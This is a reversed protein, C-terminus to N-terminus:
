YRLDLVAKYTDVNEFYGVVVPIVGSLPSIYQIIQALHLAQSQNSVVIITINRGPVVQKVQEDEISEKFRLITSTVAAPTIDIAVDSASMVAVGSHNGNNDTIIFDFCLEPGMPSQIRVNNTYNEKLWKYIALISDKGNFYTSWYQYPVHEDAYEEQRVEKVIEKSAGFTALFESFLVIHFSNGESRRRYEDLLEYRPYLLIRKKDKASSYWWDSKGDASVFIISKKYTQGLHLITHWILLDGIGGDDKKRDSSNTVPPIGNALRRNFDEKFAERESVPPWDVIVDSSFLDSYLQSIPDNWVWDEVSAVLRDLVKPYQAILQNIQQTIRALHKYEDLSTLLSSKIGPIADPKKTDLLNKYLETLVDGRNKAFERAVQAPIFLRNKEILPSLVRRCEQLLGEVFDLTKYNYPDLLVNADLVVICDDKIEEIPKIWPRFVASADPFLSSLLFPDSEGKNTGKQPQNSSKINGPQNQDQPKVNKNSEHNDPQM